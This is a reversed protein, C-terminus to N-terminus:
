PGQKVQWVEIPPDNKYRFTGLRTMRSALLAYKDSQMDARTTCVFRAIRDDSSVDSSRDLPLSRANVIFYEMIDNLNWYCYWGTLSTTFYFLSPKDGRGHAERIENGCNKRFWEVFHVHKGRLEFGNTKLFVRQYYVGSLFVFLFFILLHGARLLAGRRLVIWVGMVLVVPFAVIGRHLAFEVEPLYWGRMFVGAALTALVWLTLALMRWGHVLFMSSFLIFLFVLNVVPSVMPRGKTVFLLHEVTDCLRPWVSATTVSDKTGAVRVDQRVGFSILVSVISMAVLIMILIRRSKRSEMKLGTLVLVPLALAVVALSPTYSFILYQIVLAMLGIIELTPSKLYHLFLGCLIMALSFPYISQEFYFLQYNVWYIHFMLALVIGCVIDGQRRDSFCTLIGSAFILLGLLFYLSGGLNLAVISRGMLISPIAPLFFQRASYGLFVAKRFGFDPPTALSKLTRNIQQTSEYSVSKELPINQFVIYFWFALVLPTILGIPWYRRVRSYIPWSEALGINRVIQGLSRFGFIILFLYSFFWLVTGCQGLVPFRLSALDIIFITGYTALILLSYIFAVRRM